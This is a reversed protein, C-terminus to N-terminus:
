ANGRYMVRAMRPALLVVHRLEVLRQSAFDFDVGPKVRQHQPGCLNFSVGFPRRCPMSTGHGASSAIVPRSCAADDTAGGAQGEQSPAGAAAIAFFKRISRAAPLRNGTAIVPEDQQVVCAGFRTFARVYQRKPVKFSITSGAEPRMPPEARM